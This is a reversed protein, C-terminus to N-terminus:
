ARCDRLTSLLRGVLIRYRDQYVEACRFTVQLYCEGVTLAWWRAYDGAPDFGEVTAGSFVGCSAEKVESNPAIRKLNAVLEHWAPAWVGITDIRLTATEDPSTLMLTGADPNVFWDATEISFYSCKFVPM